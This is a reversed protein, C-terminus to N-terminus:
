IKSYIMGLAWSVVKLAFPGSEGFRVKWVYGDIGGGLCAGSSITTLDFPCQHLLSTKFASLSSLL